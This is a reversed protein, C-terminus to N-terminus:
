AFLGINRPSLEEEFFTQLSVVRNFNEQAWLARDRLLYVELPRGFRWRIMNKLFMEEIREQTDQSHYFHNIEEDAPLDIKFFQDLCSAKVKFFTAFDGWYLRPHSDGISSITPLGLIETAFLHFAYRYYKVRRKLKFKEWSMQYDGRTALTLAYSTWDLPFEKAGSSLGVDTKVDMKYYCCGFNLAHSDAHILAQKLHALALPGCTHLGLSIDCTAFYSKLQEDLDQAKLEANLFHVERAKEPAPYKKTRKLGLEQFNQDKDVAVFDMGYYFALIRSLHGVGAGIDIGLSIPERGRTEREKNIKKLFEAIVLIEHQKKGGVKHFAWSPLKDCAEYNFSPLRTLESIEELFSKFPAYSIDKIPLTQADIQWLEELPLGKLYNVFDLPYSGVDELVEFAWIQRLPGLFLALEKLHQRHNQEETLSTM